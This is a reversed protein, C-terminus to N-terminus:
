VTIQIGKRRSGSGPGCSTRSISRSGPTSHVKYGPDRGESPGPRVPESMAPLGYNECQPSRCHNVQIARRVGVIDAEVIPPVRHAPKPPPTDSM